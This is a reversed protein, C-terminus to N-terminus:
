LSLSGVLTFLRCFACGHLARFIQVIAQAALGLRPYAVVRGDCSRPVQLLSAFFIIRLKSEVIITIAVVEGLTCPGEINEWVWWM